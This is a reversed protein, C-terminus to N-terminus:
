RQELGAAQRRRLYISPRPRSSATAMTSRKCAKSRPILTIRQICTTWLAATQNRRFGRAIM